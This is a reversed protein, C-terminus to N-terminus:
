LSKLREEVKELMEKYKALKAKEENIKAEPAKNVFGPNSLMKEGRAVESLLKEREGQLRQKEAELDVLEEFPIYVEIGDALVSMVNQPINIDTLNDCGEFAGWEIYSVTEPIEIGKLEKNNKFADAGIGEVTVGELEKPIVAYEGLNDAAKLVAKENHVAYTAYSSAFASIQTMMVILMLAAVLMKKKM